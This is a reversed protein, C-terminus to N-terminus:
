KFFNLKPEDKIITQTEITNETELTKEEKVNIKLGNDDFDINYRINGGKQEPKKRLEKIRNEIKNKLNIFVNDLGESIEELYSLELYEELDTRDKEDLNPLDIKIEGIPRLSELFITDQLEKVQENFKSEARKELNRRAIGLLKDKNIEQNITQNKWYLVEPSRHITSYFCQDLYNNYKDEGFKLINQIKSGMSSSHEGGMFHQSSSLIKRKEDISKNYWDSLKTVGNQKLSELPSLLYDFEDTRKNNEAEKKLSELVEPKLNLLEEPYRHESYEYFKKLESGDMDDALNKSEEPYLRKSQEEYSPYQIVRMFFDYDKDLEKTTNEKNKNLDGRIKDKLNEVYGDEFHNFNGPIANLKILFSIKEETTKQSWDEFNEINNEKLFSLKDELNTLLNDKNEKKTSFDNETSKKFFNFKEM